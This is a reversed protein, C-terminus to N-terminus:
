PGTIGTTSRSPIELPWQKFAEELETKTASAFNLVHPYILPSYGYGLEEAAEILGLRSATNRNIGAGAKNCIDAMRSDATIIMFRDRGYQHNLHIGMSLILMDAAQM